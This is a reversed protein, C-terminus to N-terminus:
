RHKNKKSNINFYPYNFSSWVYKPYPPLKEDEECWKHWNGKANELKIKREKLKMRAEQMDTYFSHEIGLFDFWTKNCFITQYDESKIDPFNHEEKLKTPIKDYEEMFDTRENFNFNKILIQAKHKMNSDASLRIRNQLVSDFKDIVDKWDLQNLYIKIEQGGLNITIEQKNKSFSIMHKLQVYKDYRSKEDGINEFKCLSNELNMYYGLIKDVFARDYNENKFIGDIIFGNKKGTDDTDLRLVRGISQIFPISGRNKVKDIFICGDLHRIDSGERHKNACFLIACKDIAKFDTYDENTNQSTDLYFKFNTLHTRKTHEKEFIDKWEKANQIRGCWAVIKKNPMRTVIDNLIEMVTAIEGDSINKKDKNDAVHYWYFEPPLILKNSIAYVMSYNTLLPFDENNLNQENLYVERLKSLDEKGTRLPTASFGVIPINKNKSNMLFTHCQTSTTNHCEDHLILKIPNLKKYSKRLTLFARNIVLLTPKTAENLKEVWDKTKVTVRNIIDLERLDGVGIKYWNEINSKNAVVRKKSFDFLDSLINVRETFLIIKCNNGFKRICYDIYRLIIFTKGCGTAQCHIGTELGNKELRDFAEQQNIRPIFEKLDEKKEQLDDINIPNYITNEFCNNIFDEKILWDLIIQYTNKECKLSDGKEYLKDKIFESDKNNIIHQEITQKIYNIYDRFTTIGNEEKLITDIEVPFECYNNFSNIIQKVFERPIDKFEELKINYNKNFLEIQNIIYDYYNTKDMEPKM